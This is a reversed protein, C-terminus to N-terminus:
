GILQAHEGVKAFKSRLVDSVAVDTIVVDHIRKVSGSLLVLDVPCIGPDNLYKSAHLGRFNFFRLCMLAIALIVDGPEDSAVHFTLQKCAPVSGFVDKNHRGLFRAVNQADVNRALISRRDRRWWPVPVVAAAWPMEIGLRRRMALFELFFRRLGRKGFSYAHRFPEIPLKPRSKVDGRIEQRKAFDRQEITMTAAALRLEGQLYRDGDCQVGITERKRDNIAARDNEVGDLFFLLFYLAPHL